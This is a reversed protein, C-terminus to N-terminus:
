LGPSPFGLPTGPGIGEAWSPLDAPVPAIMTLAAVAEGLVRARDCGHVYSVGLIRSCCAENPEDECISRTPPEEWVDGMIFLKRGRYPQECAPDILRWSLDECGHSRLRPLDRLTDGSLCGERFLRPLPFRLSPRHLSARVGSQLRRLSIRRPMALSTLISEDIDRGRRPILFGYM